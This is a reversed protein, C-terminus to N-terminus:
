ALLTDLITTISSAKNLPYLHIGQVGAALLGEIQTIAWAEGIAKMAQDDGSNSEIRERLVKPITAGCELIKPIQHVSLLPMIGPVIPITVGAKVALDRFRLFDENTFFLQTYVSTAGCDMKYKLWKIDEAMTKAEPHKEPFGAVAFKLNKTKQKAFVILDSAHKFFDSQPRYNPNNKPADGRLALLSRVGWCQVTQIFTFISEQSSGVCTLHAMVPLQLDKTIREVLKLSNAQSMGGAGYTVSIFEPHYAQMKRLEALLNELGLDTKPPFVEFSIPIKRNM